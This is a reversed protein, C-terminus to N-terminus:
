PRRSRERLAALERAQREAVKRWRAVDREVRTTELHDYAMGAAAGLAQLSDAEDPDIDEGNLHAGYVVIAELRSRVFVPVALVPDGDHLRMSQRRGQLQLPICRDLTSGEGVYEGSEDRSFLHASSLAYAHLPERVLAAAVAESNEAYPLGAAVEAIHREALRRRRFLTTEVFQEVRGYIAHLSYAIGVATVAVIAIAAGSHEVLRGTLWEVLSFICFLAATVITYVLTRSVVFSIDFVRQRVVAYAIAFPAVAYLITATWVLPDSSALWYASSWLRAWGSAYSLLTLLVGTMAWVLRQRQPKPAVAYTALLAISAVVVLALAGLTAGYTMWLAPPIGYVLANVDWALNPIAFLVGLPLALRDLLARWGGARDDPFRAAFIVLGVPGAIDLLDSGFQMLPFVEDPFRHLTIDTASILYFFLGYTMRNPRRLLIVLAVAIYAFGALRLIATIPSFLARGAQSPRLPAANLTVSRPAPQAGHRPRAVLVFHVPEGDLAPQYLLGVIRDHGTSKTLDLYDGAAIGARAAPTQPDVSAVEFGKTYVLDYGLTTQAAFLQVTAAINLALAVAAALLAAFRAV